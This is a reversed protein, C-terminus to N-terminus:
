MGTLSSGLRKSLYSFVTEEKELLSSSYNEPNFYTPNKQRSRLM